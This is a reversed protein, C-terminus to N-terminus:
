QIAKKLFFFVSVCFLMINPLWMALSGSVDKTVALTEGGMLITWYSVSILLGLVFGVSQNHLKGAGSIAVALM